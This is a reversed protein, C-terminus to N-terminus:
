PAAGAVPCPADDADDARYVRVPLTPDEDAPSRVLCRQLWALLLPHTRELGDPHDGPRDLTVMAVAPRAAALRAIARRQRAAISPFVEYIEWTPARRHVLAWAGPWDHGAFFPRDPALTALRQVLRIEHATEVGVKLVDDGVRVTELPRGRWAPYGDRANVFLFLSAVVVVALTAGKASPRRAPWTWAIVLLPLGSVAAHMLEPCSWAYHAYPVALLTAALFTTRGPRRAAPEDRLRAVAAVIAFPAGIFLAALLSERAGAALPGGDFIAPLRPFAVAVNTTGAEVLQRIADVFAAAFGPAFLACALVPAYGIVAGGVLAALGGAALPRDGRRQMAVIAFAGGITGYLAHNIGITAAVGLGLGFAFAGRPGPERLWRALAAILLIAAFSDAAKYAPVMWVVFTCAAVAVLTPRARDVSRVLQTALLVTFAALVASGARLAVLGDSGLVAMWAASWYYRGIDYSQFDRLPVEGALVRQAGYWLFGEDAKGFGIHGEVLFLLLPLAFAVVLPWRDGLADRTRLRIPRRADTRAFDGPLSAM